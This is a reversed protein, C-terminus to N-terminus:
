NLKNENLEKLGKIFDENDQLLKYFEKPCKIM